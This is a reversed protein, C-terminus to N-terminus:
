LARRALKLSALALFADAHVGARAFYYPELDGAENMLVLAVARPQGHHAGYRAYWRNLKELLVDSEVVAVAPDIPVVEQPVASCMGWQESPLPYRWHMPWDERDGSWYSEVDTVIFEGTGEYGDAWKLELPRYPPPPEIACEIWPRESM